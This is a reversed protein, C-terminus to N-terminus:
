GKTLYDSRTRKIGTGSFYVMYVVGCHQDVFIERLVGGTCGYFFIKPVGAVAVIQTTKRHYRGHKSIINVYYIDSCKKQIMMADDDDDDKLVGISGVRDLFVAM